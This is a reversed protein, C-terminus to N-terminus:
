TKGNRRVMDSHRQKHRYTIQALVEDYENDKRIYTKM